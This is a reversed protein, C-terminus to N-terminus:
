VGPPGVVEHHPVVARCHVASAAEVAVLHAVDAAGGEGAVHRRDRLYQSRRVPPPFCKAMMAGLDFRIRHPLYRSGRCKKPRGSWIKSSSSVLRSRAEVPTMSGTGCGVDLVRDGADIGAFAILEDAPRGSWRGMLREYAAPDTATYSSAM